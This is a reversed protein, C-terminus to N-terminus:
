SLVLPQPELVGPEVNAGGAPESSAGEAQWGAPRYLGSATKEVRGEKLLQTIVRQASSPHLGTAREWQARKVGECTMGDGAHRHIDDLLGRLRKLAADAKARKPDAKANQAEIVDEVETDSQCRLFLSTTGDEFEIQELALSKPEVRGSDKAKTNKLTIFPTNEERIQHFMTDMSCRLAYAGREREFNWGTHHIILIAAGFETQLAACGRVFVSMDKTSNEDGGGFRRNLTDIVILGLRETGLQKLMQRIRIACFDLAEEIPIDIAHPFAWFNRPLEDLDTTSKWALARKRIGKAGEPYIYVVPAQETKHGFWPLGSAICLAMSLATFTKGGESTGYLCAMGNEIIHGDLIWKEPPMEAIEDFSLLRYRGLASAINPDNIDIVPRGARPRVMKPPRANGHTQRRNIRRLRAVTREIEEEPCGRQRMNAVIAREDEDEPAADEPEPLPSPTATIEEFGDDTLVRVTQPEFLASLDEDLLSAEFQPDHEHKM